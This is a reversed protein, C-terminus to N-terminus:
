LQQIHLNVNLTENHKIFDVHIIGWHDCWVCLMVNSGHLEAKPTPLCKDKDILQKQM